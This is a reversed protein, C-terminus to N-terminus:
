YHNNAGVINLCLLISVSNPSALDHSRVQTHTTQSCTTPKLEPKDSSEASSEHHDQVTMESQIERDAPKKAETQAKKRARYDALKREM